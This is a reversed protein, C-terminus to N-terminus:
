RCPERLLEVLTAPDRELNGQSGHLRMLQAALGSMPTASGQERSLKVATDLDKLLTRVHWKVPEFQSAAMQPALIQLPKSDAFGGALAPAILSADVGAREALAVVEAIVLANCAVIMQNCVKTVQGAGVEGMRTLRQGLHALVPRVREVDEERGGAMIALTGAEAGPTGGSVPADIWRMGTRAELEAAMERTAAPELSSFDVLLQGPRAGEVIGGPGFVVERVVETNALCLMVLGADRCLEAPSEVRRAGQELLPACKDPTRNWLTLPYGAALLRRTMPLGMLGIGAFALAPLTATM